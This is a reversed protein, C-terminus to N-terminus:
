LVSKPMFFDVPAVFMTYLLKQQIYVFIIYLTWDNSQFLTQSSEKRKTKLLTVLTKWRYYYDKGNTRVIYRRITLESSPNNNICLACKKGVSNKPFLEPKGFHNKMSIRLISRKVFM